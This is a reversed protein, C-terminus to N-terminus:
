QGSLWSTLPLAIMCLIVAIFAFLTRRTWIWYDLEDPDVPRPSSIIDRVSTSRLGLKRAARQRLIISVNGWGFSICFLTMVIANAFSSANGWALRLTLPIVILFAMLTALVSGVRVFFGTASQFEGRPMKKSATVTNVERSRAVSEDRTV